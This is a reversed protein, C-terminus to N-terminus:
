IDYKTYNYLAECGLCYFSVLIIPCKLVVRFSSRRSGKCCLLLLVSLLGGVIKKPLLFFYWPMQRRPLPFSPAANTLSQKPHWPCNSTQKRFFLFFFYFLIFLKFATHQALPGDTVGWSHPVALNSRGLRILQSHLAVRSCGLNGIGLRM